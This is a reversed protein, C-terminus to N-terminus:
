PNLIREARRTDGLELALAAMDNRLDADVAPGALLRELVAFAQDRRGLRAQLWAQGRQMAQTPRRQRELIALAAEFHQRAEARKGQGVLLEGFNYHSEWDGPGASFYTAYLALAESRRGASFAIRARQRQAERSQPQLRLLQQSLDNAAAALGQADALDLWVQLRVPDAARSQAARRLWDVAVADRGEAVLQEVLTAMRKPDAFLASEDTTLAALVRAGGGRERLLELWVTAVNPASARARRELWDLGAARPRPGWLYLLQQVNEGGPGESEALSQFTAEAAARDGLDLLRFAAERRRAASLKGDSATGRVLALLEDRRGLESLAAEYASPWDGGWDSAAKRLYPLAAAAGGQDILLYLRQEALARKPAREIARPLEAVLQDRRKLRLLLDLYIDTAVGPDNIAQSKRYPLAETPGLRDLVSLRLERSDSSLNADNLQAVALRNVAGANAPPAVRPDLLIGFLDDQSAKSDGADLLRSAVMDGLGTTDGTELRLRLRLDDLEASRLQPKDKLAALAERPRNARLYAEALRELAVADARLRQLAEAAAIMLPWAKEDNAIFYLDELLQRDRPTNELLWRRVAEGEGAKAALRAWAADLAMDPRQRRLEAMVVAGERFRNLRFYISGLDALSETPTRKDEALGRLVTLGAILDETQLLLQGLSLRDSYDLDPNASAQALWQRVAAKDGRALAVRAALLPREALEDPKLGAAFKQVIDSRAGAQAAEVLDLVDEVNPKQMRGLAASALDLQNLSLALEFLLQQGSPELDSQAQLRILARDAAGFAVELEALPQVLNRRPPLGAILDLALSRQGLRDLYALYAAIEDAKENQALWTAATQRLAPLDKLTVAYSAHHIAILDDVVTKSTLILRQLRRLAFTVDGAAATRQALELVEDPEAANLRDLERLAALRAAPQDMLLAVAASDQLSELKGDLRYLQQRADAYEAWRNAQRLLESLREMASADRPNAEAYRRMLNIAGDVDGEALMIQELPGVVGVSVDGRALREELISKSAGFDGSQLLMLAQESARPVLFWSALLAAASVVIVLLLNLKM